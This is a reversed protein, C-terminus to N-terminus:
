APQVELPLRWRRAGRQLEIGYRGAGLDRFAVSGDIGTESGALLHGEEDLLLVRCGPLPAADDERAARLGVAARGGAVPGVFLRIEIEGEGDPLRLTEAAPEGRLPSAAAPRPTPLGPVPGFRAADGLRLVVAAVLERLGGRERWLPPELFGLDLAPADTWDPLTGTELAALADLTAGLEARAAPHRLAHGAAEALEAPPVRGAGQGEARLWVALAPLRARFEAPSLPDPVDGLLARALADLRALRGSEGPPEGAQGQRGQDESM